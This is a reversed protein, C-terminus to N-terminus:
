NDRKGPFNTTEGDTCPINNIKLKLTKSKTKSQIPFFYNRKQSFFIYIYLSAELTHTKKLDVELLQLYTWENVRFTCSNITIWFFIIWHHCILLDKKGILMITKAIVRKKKWYDFQEVIIQRFYICNVPVPKFFYPGNM